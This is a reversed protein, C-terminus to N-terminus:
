PSLDAMGGTWPKEGIVDTADRVGTEGTADRVGTVVLHRITPGSM